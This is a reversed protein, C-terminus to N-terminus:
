MNPIASETSSSSSDQGPVYETQSYTPRSRSKGFSSIRPIRWNKGPIVEFFILNGLTWGCLAPLLSGPLGLLLLDAALIYISSKDTLTIVFPASVPTIQFKYIPPILEKYLVLTAFVLSMSGPRIHLSALKYFVSALIPLHSLLTIGLPIILLSLFYVLVLYSLYKRSGYLREIIRM